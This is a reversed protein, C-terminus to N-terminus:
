MGFIGSVRLCQETEDLLFLASCELEFTEILSEVTIEAFEEMSAARIIEQSYAQISRFRDLDRDLRYKTNVLDQEVKLFRIVQGQLEDCRAQLEESTAANNPM